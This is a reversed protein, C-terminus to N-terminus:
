LRFAVVNNADRKLKIVMARGCVAFASAAGSLIDVIGAINGVSNANRMVHQIVFVAKSLGHDVIEGFAVRQALRRAAIILFIPTIPEPWIPLPIACTAASAPSSTTILSREASRRL